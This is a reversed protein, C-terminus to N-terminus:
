NLPTPPIYNVGLDWEFMDVFMVDLGNERVERGRYKDSTAILEEKTAFFMAQAPVTASRRPEAMVKILMFPLDQAEFQRFLAAHHKFCKAAGHLQGTIDSATAIISQAAQAGISTTQNNMHVDGQTTSPIQNDIFGRWFDDSQEPTTKDDFLHGIAILRKIEEETQELNACNAGWQYHNVNQSDISVIEIEKGDSRTKNFSM